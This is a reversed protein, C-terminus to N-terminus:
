SKSKNRRDSPYHGTDENTRRNLSLQVQSYSACFVNMCITLLVFIGTILIRYSVDHSCDIFQWVTFAFIAVSFLGYTSSLSKNRRYLWVISLVAATLNISTILTVLSETLGM